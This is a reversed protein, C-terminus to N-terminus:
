WMDRRKTKSPQDEEDKRAGLDVKLSIIAESIERIRADMSTLLSQLKSLSKSIEYTLRSLLIGITLMGILLVISLSALLVETVTWTEATM